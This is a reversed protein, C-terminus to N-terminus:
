QTRLPVSSDPSQRLYTRNRGASTIDLALPRELAAIPVQQRLLVLLVMLFIRLIGQHEATIDRELLRWTKRWNYLSAVHIGLEASIQAESYRRM